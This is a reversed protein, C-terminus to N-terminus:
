EIFVKEKDADYLKCVVPDFNHNQWYKYAAEARQIEQDAKLKDEHLELYRGTVVNYDRLGTTTMKKVKQKQLSNFPHNMRVKEEPAIPRKEPADFHHEQLPLNSLINYDANTGARQRFYWPREKPYDPRDELGKLKNEFNVVNFTQEYRLSRDKNKALVDIFNDQEVREVHKEVGPDNYKQTIPNYITEKAKMDKFTRKFYPEAPEKWATRNEEYKTMGEKWTNYYGETSIFDGSRARMTDRITATAM